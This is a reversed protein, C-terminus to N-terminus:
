KGMRDSWFADQSDNRTFVGVSELVFYPGYLTSNANLQEGEIEQEMYSPIYKSFTFELCGRDYNEFENIGLFACKAKWSGIINNITIKEKTDFEGPFGHGFHLLYGFLCFLVISFKIEM